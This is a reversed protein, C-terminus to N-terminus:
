IDGRMKLIKVAETVSLGHMDAYEIIDPDERAKDVATIQPGLPEFGPAEEGPTFFEIENNRPNYYTGKGALPSKYETLNGRNDLYARKANTELEASKMASKSVLLITRLVEPHQNLRPVTRELFEREKETDISRAGADKAVTKVTELAEKNLQSELLQVNADFVKRVAAVPGSGVIPGTSVGAALKLARNITSLREPILVIKSELAQVKKDDRDYNKTAIPAITQAEAFSLGDIQSGVAPNTRKMTEVFRISIESEPDFKDAERRAKAESVATKSTLASLTAEATKRRAADGPTEIFKLADSLGGRTKPIAVDPVGAEKLQAKTSEDLPESERRLKETQIRVLEEKTKGARREELWSPVALGLGLVGQAIGLAQAIRDLADPGRPKARPQQIPQLAM